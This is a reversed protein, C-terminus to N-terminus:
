NPSPREIHDIVLVEVPAKVPVLKLGLEEPLATFLSPGSDSAAAADNRPPGGEQVGAMVPPYGVTWKLTIDYKGTLGTRDLIPRDVLGPAGLLMVLTAIPVGQGTIKGPEERWGGAGQHVVRNVVALLGASSLGGALGLLAVLLVERRCKKFLYLLLKM